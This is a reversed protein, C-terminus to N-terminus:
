RLFVARTCRSVGCDSRGGGAWSRSFVGCGERGVPAPVDRGRTRGEKGTFENKGTYGIARLLAAMAQYGTLTGDPLYTKADVGKLYGNDACYNVYGAFWKDSTVDDFRKAGAYNAVYKDTVDGTVM